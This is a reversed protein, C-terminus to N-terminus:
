PAVFLELKSSCYRLGTGPGFPWSEPSSGLITSYKLKVSITKCPSFNSLPLVQPKLRALGSLLVSPSCWVGGDHGNWDTINLKILSPRVTVPATNSSAMSRSARTELSYDEDGVYRPLDIHKRTSKRFINAQMLMLLCTDWSLRM